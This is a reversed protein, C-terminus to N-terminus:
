KTPALIPSCISLKCGEHSGKLCLNHAPSLSGLLAVSIQELFFSRRRAKRALMYKAHSNCNLKCAWSLLYTKSENLSSTCDTTPMSITPHIESCSTTLTSLVMFLDKKPYSVADFCFGSNEDVWKGTLVRGYSNLAGTSSPKQRANWICLKELWYNKPLQKWLWTRCETRQFSFLLPIVARCEICLHCKLYDGCESHGELM